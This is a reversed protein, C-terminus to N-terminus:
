YDPRKRWLVGGNEGQYKEVMGATEMEGLLYTLREGACRIKERLKDQDLFNEADLHSLVLASLAKCEQALAYLDALTKIQNAVFRDTLHGGYGGQGGLDRLRMWAERSQLASKEAQDYVAQRLYSMAEIHHHTAEKELASLGASPVKAAMNRDSAPRVMRLLFGFM